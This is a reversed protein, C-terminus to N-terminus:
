EVDCHIQMAETPNPHIRFGVAELSSRVAALVARHKHSRWNQVATPTMVGMPLLNIRRGQEEVGVDVHTGDDAHGNHGFIETVESRRSPFICAFIFAGLQRLGKQLRTEPEYARTLILRITAPLMTQALEVRAFTDREILVVRRPWRPRVIVGSPLVQRPVLELDGTM